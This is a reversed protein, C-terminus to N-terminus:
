GPRAEGQGGVVPAPGAARAVVDARDEAVVRGVDEPEDRAALELPGHDLADVEQARAGVLREGPGLAPDEERVPRVEELPRHAPDKPADLVVGVPVPAPSWMFDTAPRM